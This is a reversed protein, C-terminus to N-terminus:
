SRQRDGTIHRGALPSLSVQTSTEASILSCDSNVLLNCSKVVQQYQQWCLRILAQFDMYQNSNKWCKESLNVATSYVMYEASSWNPVGCDTQDLKTVAFFQDSGTWENLFCATSVHFRILMLCLFTYVFTTHSSPLVHLLDYANYFSLYIDYLLFPQM